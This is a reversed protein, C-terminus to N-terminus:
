FTRPWKWMSYKRTKKRWWAYPVNESVSNCFRYSSLSTMESLQAIALHHSPLPVIEWPVRLLVAFASSLVCIFLLTILIYQNLLFDTQLKSVCDFQFVVDTLRCIPYWFLRSVLAIWRSHYFDRSHQYPM